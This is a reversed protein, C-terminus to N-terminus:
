VLMEQYKPISEAVLWVRPANHTFYVTTYDINHKNVVMDINTYWFYLLKETTERDPYNYLYQTMEIMQYQTYFGNRM